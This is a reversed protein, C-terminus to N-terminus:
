RRRRRVDSVLREDPRSWCAVGQRVRASSGMPSPPSPCVGSVGIARAEPLQQEHDPGRDPEGPHRADGLGPLEREPLSAMQVQLTVPKSPDDMYTAVGIQRMAKLSPDLTLTLADGAKLYDPFKLAVLGPGQQALSAKGAGIVVQILGPDPPVYQHVLATAAELEEKM